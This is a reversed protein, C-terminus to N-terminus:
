RSWRAVVDAHRGAALEMEVVDEICALRLEELRVFEGRAEGSDGLEQLPEGRFEALAERLTLVAEAPQQTRARRRASEVKWADLCEEGVVLEYGGGATLIRERGLAQRLARVYGQVIKAATPPPHEPWLTDAIRDTSLTENAHLLLLALLARPRGPPLKLPGAEGWVELPGLIRFEM